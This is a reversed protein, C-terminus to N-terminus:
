SSLSVGRLTSMGVVSASDCLALPRETTTSECHEMFQRRAGHLRSYVTGVPIGLIAAIEECSRGEFEYMVFVARKASSVKRLARRVRRLQERTATSEQPSKGPALAQAVATMDFSERSQQRTRQRRRNCAVRVAIAALWSTPHATRREFGGRRHAVLFVEQTLDALEGPPVGYGALFRRVYGAHARFLEGADLHESM